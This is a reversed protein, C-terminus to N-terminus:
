FFSTLNAKLINIGFTLCTKSNKFDILFHSLYTNDNRHFAAPERKSLTSGEIKSIIQGIVVTLIFNKILITYLYIKVVLLPDLRILCTSQNHTQFTNNGLVVLTFSSQHILMYHFFHRHQQIVDENKNDGRRGDACRSCSRLDQPYGCTWNQCIHRRGDVWESSKEENTGSM